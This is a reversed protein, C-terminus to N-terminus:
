RVVGDRYSAPVCCVLPFVKLFYEAAFCVVFFYLLCVHWNIRIHKVRAFGDRFPIFCFLLFVPQGAYVDRGGGPLLVVDVPLLKVPNLVAVLLVIGVAVAVVRGVLLRLGCALEACLDLSRVSLAGNVM